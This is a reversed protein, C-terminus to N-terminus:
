GTGRPVVMSTGVAFSSPSPSPEAPPVIRRGAAGVPVPRQPRPRGALPVGALVAAPRRALLLDQRRPHVRAIRAVIARRRPPRRFVVALRGERPPPVGLVVQQLPRLAPVAAAPSSLATGSLPGVPAPVTRAWPAVARALVLRRSSRLRRNRRRRRRRRPPSNTVLARARPM